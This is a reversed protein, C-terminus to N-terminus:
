TTCMCAVRQEAIRAPTNLESWRPWGSRLGTSLSSINRTSLRPSTTAKRPRSRESKRAFYKRGGLPLQKPMTWAAKGFESLKNPYQKFGNSTSRKPCISRNHEAKSRVLVEKPREREQTIGGSCGPGMRTELKEQAAPALDSSITAGLFGPLWTRRNTLLSAGKTAGGLLRVEACAARTLHHGGAQVYQRPNYFADCEQELVALGFFRTPHESASSVGPVLAKTPLILM